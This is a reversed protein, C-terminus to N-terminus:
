MFVSFFNWFSLPYGELNKCLVEFYSIIFWSMFILGPTYLIGKIINKIM